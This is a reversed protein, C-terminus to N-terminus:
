NGSLDIVVTVNFIESTVTKGNADTVVCKFKTLEGSPVLKISSQNTGFVEFNDSNKEAYSWQYTYPATGGIVVANL